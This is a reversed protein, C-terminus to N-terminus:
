QMHSRLQHNLHHLQRRISKVRDHDGRDLADDRQAKLQRMRTKVSSKDIGVVTHHETMDVGLARCLAPLLREKNMQSYGQVAEDPIGKAIERLDAITLEKLGHLSYTQAM